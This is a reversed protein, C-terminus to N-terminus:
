VSRSSGNVEENSIIKESMVLCFLKPMRVKKIIPIEIKNENKSFVLVEIITIKLIIIEIFIRKQDPPCRENPLSETNPLYKIGINGNNEM